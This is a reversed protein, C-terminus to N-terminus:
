AGLQRSAEALIVEEVDATFAAPQVYLPYAGRVEYGGQAHISRSPVYGVVGNAYAATTVVQYPFAQKIRLGIETVVEGALFVLAHHADLRLTQVTFPVAPELPAAELRALLRRAWERTTSGGAAAPDAVMQELAERTPVAEIPLKATAATARLSPTEVARARAKGALAEAAIAEGAAEIEAIEAVRFGGEASLFAPRVNGACGTAWVAMGGWEREIAQRVFGPYDFGLLYGSRSTPHCGYVTLSALPAGDEGTVWYTDLDRDIVGEPNPHFRVGGAGDPLRRNIGFASHARSFAVRAPRARALAEGAVAVLQAEVWELYAMDREGPMVIDAVRPGCHTHTACLVVGEVPVGTAAAIKARIRCEQERDFNLVDASVIVATADGQRLALARASLPAYVGESPRDRAGYGDMWVPRDPTIERMAAGAHLM